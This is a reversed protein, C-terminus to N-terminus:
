KHLLISQKTPHQWALIEWVMANWATSKTDKSLKQHIPTCWSAKLNNPTLLHFSNMIWGNFWKHSKVILNDCWSSLIVSIWQFEHWSTLKRGDHWSNRHIDMTPFHISTPTLDMGTKFLFFVQFSRVVTEWKFYNLFWLLNNKTKFPLQWM